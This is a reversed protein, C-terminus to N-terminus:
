QLYNKQQIIASGVIAATETRLRSVGLSVLEFGAAKAAEAEAASFDGEPGIMLLVDTGPVYIRNLLPLKEEGCYAMFKQSALPAAQKIFELCKVAENLKPFHLKQSQKAAARIIKQLRDARLHKRESHQCLIPTVEHIGIETAKELALEMRAMNKTPALVLHVNNEIISQRQNDISFTGGKKDLGTLIGQYEGGQGDTCRIPDGVRMRVVDRLHRSEEQSLYGTDGDVKEVFYLQMFRLYAFVTNAGSYATTPIRPLVM